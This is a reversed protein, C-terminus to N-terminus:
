RPGKERIAGWLAAWWSRAWLLPGCNSLLPLPLSRASSTKKAKPMFLRRLLASKAGVHRLHLSEFERVSNLRRGCKSDKSAPTKQLM